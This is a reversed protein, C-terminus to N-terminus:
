GGGKGAGGKAGGHNQDLPVAPTATGSGGLAATAQTYQSGTIQGTSRLFVAEAYANATDIARAPGSSANAVTQLAAAMQAPGSQGSAQLRAIEAQLQSAQSSTNTAPATTAPATTASTTPASPLSTTTTTAQSTPTVAAPHSPAIPATTAHRGPSSGGVLAAVLLALAMVTLFAAAAAFIKPRGRRRRRTAPPPGSWMATADPEALLPEALLPEALRLDAAMASASSYRDESRQAMAREVVSVLPTSLDPRLQHLGVYHGSLAAHAQDLPSAGGFPKQGALAEYLVVGLAYLDSGATASQGEIQEPSLYAATGVVLGAATLDTGGTVKAIGFDAVKARGEGTLLINGPKIDRHVMGLRHAAGLAALVDLAVPVTWGADLPGNRMADALTTGPLREIVLFARGRDEGADFVGVASPHSLGAAARGEHAFREQMGPTAAIHPHLVKIAVPRDLRTDFGDFVAAMGGQGLVRSLRYRGAFLEGPVAALPPHQGAFRTEMTNPEVGGLAGSCKLLHDVWATLVGFGCRPALIDKTSTAAIKSM